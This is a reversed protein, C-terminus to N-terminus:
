FLIGVVDILKQKTAQGVIGDVSLSSYYTQFERVVKLTDSGFIGDTSLRISGRGWANLYVQLRYVYVNYGSKQVLNPRGFIREWDAQAAIAAATAETVDIANTNALAPLAVAFLSVALLALALVKKMHKM